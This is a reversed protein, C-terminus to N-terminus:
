KYLKKIEKFNDRNVKEGTKAHHEVAIFYDQILGKFSGKMMGGMAAPKTRFQMDFSLKSKGSGLDEVKYVALTYEPDVPFKGAQYVRNTFQMNAPDYDVMRERLFQSGSENFYCVREAGEGGELSGNIYESRIIRPHSYAIAGYDEAVVHWLTDASIDMIKEVKFRKVKKDTNSPAFSTITIALVVIALSRIAHTINYTLM